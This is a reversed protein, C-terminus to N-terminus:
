TDYFPQGADLTAQAWLRRHVSQIGLYARFAQVRRVGIACQRSRDVVSRALQIGRCIM